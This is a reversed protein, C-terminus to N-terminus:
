ARLPKRGSDQGASADLESHGESFFPTSVVVVGGPLFIVGIAGDVGAWLLLWAPNEGMNWIGASTWRSGLVGLRVQLRRTSALTSWCRRLKTSESGAKYVRM